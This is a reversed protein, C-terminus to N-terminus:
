DLLSVFAFRSKLAVLQESSSESSADDEAVDVENELDSMNKKYFLKHIECEIKSTTM